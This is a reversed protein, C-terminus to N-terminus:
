TVVLTKWLTILIQPYTRMEKLYKFLSHQTNHILLQTDVLHTQLPDLQTMIINVLRAYCLFRLIDILPCVTQLVCDM